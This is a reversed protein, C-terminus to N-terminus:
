RVFHPVTDNMKGKSSACLGLGDLQALGKLLHDIM